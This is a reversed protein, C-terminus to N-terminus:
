PTPAASVDAYIHREGVPRLRTAPLTPDADLLRGLIQRKGAGAVLYAVHLSSELAPYTLSIRSESDPGNVAVVWRECESLAPAGPFLSATHGDTGIGLLTVDFLPRAPDLCTAGYFAKLESEYAQAAAAPGIGETPIPHINGTPPSVRSFLAERVMSYNSRADTAPVFREDGWFWHLRSWPMARRYDPTALLRYLGRPTSGGALAVAFIGQKANALDLLWDALGHALAEPDAFVTLDSM